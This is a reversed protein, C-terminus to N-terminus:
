KAWPELRHLLSTSLVQHFDRHCQMIKLVGMSGKSWLVDLSLLTMIRRRSDILSESTVSYENAPVTGFCM